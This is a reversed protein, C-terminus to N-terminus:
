VIVNTGPHDKKYMVYVGRRLRIIKKISGGRAERSSLKDCVVEALRGPRFKNKEFINSKRHLFASKSRVFASKCVFLLKNAM